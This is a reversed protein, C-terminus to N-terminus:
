IFSLLGVYFYHFDLLGKISKPLRNRSDPLINSLRDILSNQRTEFHRLSEIM